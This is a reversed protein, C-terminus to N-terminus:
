CTKAIRSLHKKLIPYYFHFSFQDKAMKRGSDGMRNRIEKNEILHSLKKFWDEENHLLYGNSGDVILKKNIQVPSACSPIGMAMYQLLKYGGKGRTWENDLLPMIGIDFNRINKVETDYTWKKQIIRIGEVNLHGAGVTEFVVNKYENCINILATSILNLYKQTSPSGIWGIVISEKENLKIPYYRDTDIPGIIKLINANCVRKLYAESENNEIIILDFLPVLKDFRSQNRFLGQQTYIADDFDFVLRKNCRKLFRIIFVPFFVKQIFLINYEGFFMLFSARMIQFASYFVNFFNFLNVLRYLIFSIIKSIPGFKFNNSHIYNSLLYPIANFNNLVKYDINDKDFFPLYQYVRTRSSSNIQSGFTIFLIKM